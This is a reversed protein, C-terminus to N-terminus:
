NKNNICCIKAKRTENTSKPRGNSIKREAKNRHFEGKSISLAITKFNFM